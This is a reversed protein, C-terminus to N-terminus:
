IAPQGAQKLAPIKRRWVVLKMPELLAFKQRKPPRFPFQNRKQGRRFFCEAGLITGHRVDLIISPSRHLQFTISYFKYINFTGQKRAADREEM